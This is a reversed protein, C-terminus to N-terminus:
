EDPIDIWREFWGVRCSGVRVCVRGGQAGRRLLYSIERSSSNGRSSQLSLAGAGSYLGRGWGDLHGIERRPHETPALACGETSIEAYLPECMPLTQASSLIYTPLYGHNDIRIRLHVLGESQPILEISGDRVAPALAAVRLFAASQDRCISDIKEYPPNWIGVLPDLGGIELKGLQPHQWETWPKLIRGHNYERDWRAIAIIDERALHTYQDVFRKCRDRDFGVARFFDWLEVAYAICGRHHYAYDTLDGHLPKEPEYTFDEFGSVMPYGTHEQAWAGIQRFLALDTPEMKNDPKDGMPRIFVGGFTHCNLWAFIHPHQTTFEVVARSEAESLPFPGAGLQQPEPAWQWPFNRNLDIPGASLYTPRPITHGDFNEITGEPYINYFPGEDDIDRLLMLGPFEASEVYEGCPDEVRMRMARGDGDVDGIRWRALNKDVRQDRPISRIFRGTDLVSEAGDPSMRPLVYFLVEHLRSIVPSSLAPGSLGLHLRLMDEAIALAVSSGCLESAHMNGDVWVAPRIRDPDIGITILWMSRGEPTEGISSLRVLDPFARAWGQVQTTLERYSLYRSRFGQDLDALIEAARQASRNASAM